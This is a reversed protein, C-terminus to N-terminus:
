GGAREPETSKAVEQAVIRTVVDTIGGPTYPVVVRIPRAPYNAQALAQTAFVAAGLALTIYTNTKLCNKM